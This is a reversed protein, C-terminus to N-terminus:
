KRSWGVRKSKALEEINVGFFQPKNYEEGKIEPALLRSEDRIHMCVVLNKGIWYMPDVGTRKIEDTYKSM